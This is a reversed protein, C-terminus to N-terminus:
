MVRQLTILTAVLVILSPTVAILPPNLGYILGIHGVTTDIINFGMGIVAGILIRAGTSIGRRIGIVFPTSVLLMVFIVLPNVVRGWFSMEYIQSKQQNDQLFKIYMALDYLSLNDPNVVVIKILDPAISSTWRQENKNNAVVQHTAIDSQTVEQLRWEQNGLFVAKEAHLSHRLQQQDDIDYISIDDLDSNDDIHRINIFRKGERLWLGYRTKLVVQKNQSTVKILQAKEEAVPAVFEGILIAITALILGALMVSKIMGLLSLGAARMAILEYNNAMGGLAFLSGVLASAPLLEYCVTPSTLSVFYFVQLLGYSGKGIDDLEDSFTFLDFLTLLLILAIVSNKIIEKVIYRTLVNM